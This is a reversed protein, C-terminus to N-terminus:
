NPSEIWRAHETDFFEKTRFIKGDKIWFLFHYHNNYNKGSNHIAKSEAILSVKEGEATFEHLLFKFEKFARFLLKFGLSISKRNHNGSANTTGLIWWELDESFFEFAETFKKDNIATFFQEIIKKNEVESM